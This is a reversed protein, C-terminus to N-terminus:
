YSSFDKTRKPVDNSLRKLDQEINLPNVVNDLTKTRSKSTKPVDSSLRELGQEINLPNVANDLTKTR